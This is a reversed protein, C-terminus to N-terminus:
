PNVEPADARTRAPEFATAPEGGVRVNAASLYLLEKLQFPTLGPHESLIRACLGSIFPTAFSNGTIRATCRGIWAVQVNQGPAFFEVPPTPNYLYLEPDEEQHSGVSIVSSVRWPFSEVHANHASAVVATGQFYAQDTLARLEPVLRARTTSLSLNIVDFRQAVAWRLGALLADGSGTFGDGLVRVSYLRCRPAVRRILGACATGHGCSDGHAVREVRLGGPETGDAPDETVAYSGQIRGVWPHRAEIGTDLVCVRVGAGTSEGWAGGPPLPFGGARVALREPDGESLQWTLPPPDASPADAPAAPPPETASPQEALPETAPPETPSPETPSPETPSPETPPSTM